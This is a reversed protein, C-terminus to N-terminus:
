VFASEGTRSQAKRKPKSWEYANRQTSTLCIGIGAKPNTPKSYRKFLDSALSSRLNVLDRANQEQRSEVATSEQMSGLVAICVGDVWRDAGVFMSVVVMVCGGCGHGVYFVVVGEGFAAGEEGALALALAFGFGFGFSELVCALVVVGAWVFGDDVRPFSEDM